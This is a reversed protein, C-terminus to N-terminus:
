AKASVLAFTNVNYSQHKHSKYWFFIFYDNSVILTTLGEFNSIEKQYILVKGNSQGYKISKM